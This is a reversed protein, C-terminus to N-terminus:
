PIDQRPGLLHCYTEIKNNKLKTTIATNSSDLGNGVM